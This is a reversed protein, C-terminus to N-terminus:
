ATHQQSQGLCGAGQQQDGQQGQPGRQARAKGTQDREQADADGQEPGTVQHGPEQLAIVIQEGPLGPGDGSGRSLRRGRHFPVVINERRVSRPPEARAAPVASAAVAQPPPPPPAPEPSGISVRFIMAGSSDSVAGSGSPSSCVATSSNMPMGSSMVQTGLELEESRTVTTIAESSMGWTM